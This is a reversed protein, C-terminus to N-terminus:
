VTYFLEYPTLFNGELGAELVKVPEGCTPRVGVLNGSTPESAHCLAASGGVCYQDDLVVRGDILREGVPQDGFAEGRDTRKVPGAGDVGVGSM